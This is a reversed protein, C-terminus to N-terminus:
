FNGFPYELKEGMSEIGNKKIASYGRFYDYIFKLRGIKKPRRATHLVFLDLKMRYSAGDAISRWGYDVDEAVALDERFGHIKIHNEKTTLLLFGPTVKDKLITFLLLPYLCVFTFQSLIDNKEAVWINATAIINKHGNM